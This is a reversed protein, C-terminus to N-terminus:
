IISEFDTKIFFPHHRIETADAVHGIREEANKNLLKVKLM